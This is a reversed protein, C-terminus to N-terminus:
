DDEKAIKIADKLQVKLMQSVGDQNMTVGYLSQCKTMTGVRHTIVIFQTHMSYKQLYRGFREVNAQDLAAEAEDLICLPVPRVRMIAFLVCIAILSKEGGSFLRINQVNKGPPQIDIDIGANLIDEDDLVLKAHGGGFLEKFIIPLEQNIKDFMSIFRKAMTEDMEDIVKLLQNRAIILDHNQQKLFEYRESLEAFLAPADLNVNGFAQLERRLKLALDRNIVVDPDIQSAAYEYTLQYENALRELHNNIAIQLKSEQIKLQGIQMRQENLTRRGTRIMGEKMDIEKQFVIKQERLQSLKGTLTDRNSYAQNLQEILLEEVQDITIDNTDIKFQELEFKLDALKATKSEVLPINQALAVRHDTIEIQISDLRQTVENNKTSLLDIESQCKAIQLELDTLQKKNSLLSNYDKQKGGTMSGGRHVVDGDLTVIKSSFKIMRAIHNADELTKALMVNGLLAKVLVLLDESYSVYDSMLGLYGPQSAAIAEQDRSISRSSLVSLPLFTARGGDNRKLFSIASRASLEDRTVINNISGGLATELAIEYGNQPVILTAVVGVIGDLQKNEVITKIGQQQQFPNNIMQHLYIQQAQYKRLWNYKNNLQDNVLTFESKLTVQSDNALLLAAQIGLQAQKLGQLELEVTKYRQQLQLKVQEDNNTYVVYKRRQELEVKQKELQQLTHMASMLHNSSDQIQTDCVRVKDKLVDIQRENVNISTESMVADNELRSLQQQLLLLQDNDAKIDNVLVAV